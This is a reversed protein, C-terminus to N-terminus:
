RHGGHISPSPTKSELISASSLMHSSDDSLHRAGPETDIPPTSTALFAAVLFAAVVVLFAAVFFDAVLFAAVFFVAVLFVAAFFAAGLFFAAFFFYNRVWATRVALFFMHAAALLEEGRSKQQAGGHRLLGRGLSGPM